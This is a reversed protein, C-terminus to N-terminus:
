VGIELSKALDELSYIEDDSETSDEYDLIIEIKSKPPASAYGKGSGTRPRSSTSSPFSAGGGSMTTSPRSRTPIPVMSDSFTAIERLVKEIRFFCDSLKTNGAAFYFPDTGAAAMPDNIYLPTVKKNIAVSTEEDEFEIDELNDVKYPYTGQASRPSHFRNRSLGYGLGTRTDYKTISQEGINKATKNNPM